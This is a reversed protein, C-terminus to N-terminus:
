TNMETQRGDLEICAHLRSPVSQCVKIVLELDIATIAEQIRQRMDELTRPKVSYVTNKIVGWLFFDLPSLDPSRPPWEIWGRRGIWANAFKEDLWSRVQRGYHPPAGDQQLIFNRNQILPWLWDRLMALYTASTVTGDFFYPGIIGESSMGCWVTIGPLNVEKDIIKGPNEASWYICNHRNICGNLKFSAEDSWLTQNVIQPNAYVRQLYQESFQVRRDFDDEHLAHILRPIFPKLGMRKLTKRVTEHSTKWNDTHNLRNAIKRTSSPENPQIERLVAEQYDPDNQLSPRGPKSEDSVSGTREFKNVLRLISTHSPQPRNFSLAIHLSTKSANEHKYYHKLASIREQLNLRIGAM